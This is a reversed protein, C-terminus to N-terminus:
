EGELEKKRQLIRDRLDAMNEQVREQGAQALRAMLEPLLRIAKQGIPTRYFETLERLEAETFAEAYMRIVDTKVAKWGVHEILFERLVDEYDAFGPDSDLQSQVRWELASDALEGAKSVELFEESAALHSESLDDAFALTSVVIAAVFVFTLHRM